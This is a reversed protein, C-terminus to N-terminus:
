SAIVAVCAPDPGGWQGPKSRGPHRVAPADYLREWRNTHWARVAQEGRPQRSRPHRATDTRQAPPDDKIRPGCASDDQTRRGPAGITEGGADTERHDTHRTRTHEAEVPRAKKAATALPTRPHDSARAKEQGRDPRALNPELCRSPADPVATRIARGRRQARPETAREHPPEQGRPAARERRPRRPAPEALRRHGCGTVDTIDHRRHYPKM